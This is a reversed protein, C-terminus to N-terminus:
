ISWISCSPSKKYTLKHRSQNNMMSGIIYVSSANIYVIYHNRNFSLFHLLNAGFMSVATSLVKHSVGYKSHEMWEEMTDYEGKWWPKAGDKKADNNNHHHHHGHHHGHHHKHKNSGGVAYKALSELPVITRSRAFSLYRTVVSMDPLSKSIMATLKSSPSLYSQHIGMLEKGQKADDEGEEEVSSMPQSGSGSKSGSSSKSGSGSSSSSSGTSQSASSSGASSVGDTQHVELEEKTKLLLLANEDGAVESSSGGVQGSSEFSSSNYLGLKAKADFEDHSAEEIQMNYNLAEQAAAFKARLVDEQVNIGTVAIRRRNTEKLKEEIEDKARQKELERYHHKLHKEAKGYNGDALFDAFAKENGYQGYIFKDGSFERPGKPGKDDQVIDNAREGSVKSPRMVVPFSVETTFDPHWGKNWERMSNNFEKQTMKRRLDEFNNHKLAELRARERKRRERVQPDEDAIYEDAIKKEDEKRYDDRTKEFKGIRNM